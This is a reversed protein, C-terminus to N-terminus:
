TRSSSAKPPQQEWDIVKLGKVRIFHKTNGSILTMSHAKATAAIIADETEIRNGQKRLQADISAWQYSEEVGFPVIQIPRLFAEVKALEQEPRDSLYTGLVLEGVTLASVAVSTLPVSSLAQLAWPKRRLCAICFNSDLMFRSM